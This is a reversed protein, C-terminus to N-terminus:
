ILAMVICAWGALRRPHVYVRACGSGRRDDDLEQCGPVIPLGDRAEDDLGVVVPLAEPADM